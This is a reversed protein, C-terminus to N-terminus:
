AARRLRKDGYMAQDAHNLLGRPDLADEPFMALGISVGIRPFRPDQRILEEALRDIAAQIKRAVIEAQERDTEPLIIAFEDGGPRAVLDYNRVQGCLMQAVERLVQDGREHGLTDNVTKFGDLDLGLVAMPHRNKQARNLEQGLFDRLYRANRLGTLADTLATEQTQAFLRANGVARGAMQGVIVMVRLDDPQFADPEGHYLNITGIVREEVTLPVILASHLPTWPEVTHRLEIEEHFYSTRIPAGRAAVRGTLGTGVRARSRRFHWHNVGYVAHARLWEGEEERLFIVCTACPVIARIKHTLVDLTESLCLTSGVSRALDYLAQMERQARAIECAASQGTQRAREGTVAGCLLQLNVTDVIRRFAAVVEPDFQTGANREIEAMAEEHTRGPRHARDSALTDYADAVALIRAGLPIQERALGDPYGSGDFHERHHRVIAAVPWPFPVAALIRAGLVPYHRVKMREESTLVGEKSLITEPVGLRGIDHMLVAARLGDVASEEIGMVRATATAYALVRSLHGLNHPIRAELACALSEVAALCLQRGAAREVELRALLARERARAARLFRAQAVCGALGLPLYLTALVSRGREGYLPSTFQWLAATVLLIALYGAGHLLADMWRGRM